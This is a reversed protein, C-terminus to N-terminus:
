KNREELLEQLVDKKADFILFEEGRSSPIKKDLEDLINQIVSIPISNEVKDRYDKLIKRTDEETIGAQKTLESCEECLSNINDIRLQKNEEEM